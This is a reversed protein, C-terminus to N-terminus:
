KNSFNEFDLDGQDNFFVAKGFKFIVLITDNTVFNMYKIEKQHQRSVLTIKRQGLNPRIVFNYEYDEEMFVQMM